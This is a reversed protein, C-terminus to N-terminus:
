LLSYPDIKIILKEKRSLVRRKQIEHLFDILEEAELVPASLVIRSKTVNVKFPELIRTSPPIREEALAQVLGRQMQAIESHIGEILVFRFYPPLGIEQRSQLERRLQPAPNWRTLSNVIPHSNELSVFIMGSVSVLSASSFFQNTVREVARVDGQGFFRLGELLFVAAYGGEIYPEGGPTAIVLANPGAYERKINEGSSNVIPYGPFSRGIEEAFRDSGKALVYIAGGNCEQCVWQPFRKQCISCAPPSNSGVQLLAGGCSCLGVNRCKACRLANAYGKAPVLFLVSGSKLSKRVLSFANSSLLEGRDQVDAVVNMKRSSLLLNLWGIDILRSVELSPAFGVFILNVEENQARLISVDRANWGPSRAEYYDPSSEDALIVTSGKALPTFVAGRLGVGIQAAGSVMTLFNRYRDARPLSGDLRVCVGNPLIETLFRLVSILEAEDNVILLVQGLLSRSAALNALLLSKNQHPPISWYGRVSTARLEKPLASEDITYEASTPAHLAEKDVSVLSPPIAGRVVDYPSCGWRQAVSTFLDLSAQTAIPHKSLVRGIEKLKGQNESTAVREVVIGEHMTSGFEVEVRIGIQVEDSFIEPVLYDFPEDLHYVGTDVLVRAVPLSKAVELAARKGVQSRLKLPRPIAM